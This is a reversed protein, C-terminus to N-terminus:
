KIQHVFIYDNNAKPKHCGICMAVKGEPGGKGETSFRVWYWNGGEPNYDKIKYMVTLATMKKDSNFAEKVIISDFPVPTYEAKHLIDNVYVKVFAGHPSNGPQMGSFDDWSKWETYPSTESIYTWFETANPGPMKDDFAHATLFAVAVVVIITILTKKM